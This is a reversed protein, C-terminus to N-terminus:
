VDNKNEELYEEFIRLMEKATSVKSCFVLELDYREKLAKISGVMSNGTCKTRWTKRFRTDMDIEAADMQIRLKMKERSKADEVLLIMKCKDVKSKCFETEFRNRGQCINGALETLNMKREICCEKEYSKGDIEFSYDGYEMKRSTWEIGKENLVKVIHQCSKERSDIIITM